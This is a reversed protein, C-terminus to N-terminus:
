GADTLEVARLYIGLSMKRTRVPPDAILLEISYKGAQRPSWRYSWLTWPDVHTQRFGEVTVFDEDPNFRIKLTKVLHTGGWLIGLVRYSPKGGVLWKEVRVPMAAQDVTAPQYEAAVDPVGDQLTRVAYERMQSTAEETDDVVRISNVWKICACGYWGPVVLRVPAGHDSALAQGNMETALFAGANVLEKAPFVWSAGPISTFSQGAYDDFGSILVQSAGPRAGAQQLIQSVPIGTWRATSILGFHVLRVNGACEMLHVGMPQAKRRLEHIGAILPNGVLGDVKIKWDLSSPLLRSAGTRLYFDKLPTVSRSESLRSLDTYLRADLEDGMRMALPAQGEDTFPVLGLFKAETSDVPGTEGQLRTFRSLLFAAAALGQKLTQRRTPRKSNLDGVSYFAEM